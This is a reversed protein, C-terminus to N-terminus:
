TVTAASTLRTRLYHKNRPVLTSGTFVPSTGGATVVARIFKSNVFSSLYFSSNSTGAVQGFKAITVITGAAFTPSESGQITIDMTPATGTVTGTTFVFTTDQSWDVEVITGNTTGAANITAGTLLNPALADTVYTGM